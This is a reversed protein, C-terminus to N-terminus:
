RVGKAFASGDGIWGLQCGSFVLTDCRNLLPPFLDQLILVRLRWPLSLLERRVMDHVTPKWLPQKRPLCWPSKVLFRAVLVRGFVSTESSLVAAAVILTADILPKPSVGALPRSSVCRTEGQAGKEKSEILM